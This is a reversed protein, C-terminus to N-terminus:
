RIKSKHIMSSAPSATMECRVDTHDWYHLHSGEFTTVEAGKMAGDMPFYVRVTGCGDTRWRRAGASRWRRDVLAKPFGYRNRYGASYIVHRAGSTRVFESSSSTTSGHHGAVVVDIPAEQILTPLLLQEIRAEADGTLLASGGSGKVLLVCSANNGRYHSAQPPQIFGFRVGDWRWSYRSPCLTSRVKVRAPEGSFVQGATVQALLRPAAGAHDNDGHSLIVADLHDIGQHRLWPVVVADALNFGGPYAAGTDFVAVHNRTQIVTGLGQGVDLVQLRFEGQQLDPRPPLHCGLILLLGAGRTRMGPPALLMASGLFLGSLTAPSWAPRLSLPHWQALWSLGGWVWTLVTAVWEVPPAYGGLLLIIVALMAAPILVLSFLPVMLLNILFGFPAMPMDFALLVPYLAISIGAQIILWTLWWPRGRTHPVLALIAGVAVFSLWFGADLVADPEFVLVVLLVQGFLQWPSWSRRFWLLLVASALMLLARQAPLGMGSILAYLTAAVLGAVAGAVMAPTHRCVPIRRWGRAVLFGVLGAALSIHLGSIALLHSVGTASLTERMDHTISSRDGLVLAQLIAKGKAPADIRQLSDRISQRVRAIWCCGAPGDPEATGDVVYGTYRIGHRYLWASYDWSGPNRYAHAPKVRLRARWSGGARLEPADRWSLRVRSVPGVTGDPTKIRAVFRTINRKRAPLDEITLRAEVTRGVWEPPLEPVQQVLACAAAWGWGLPLWVWWRVGWRILAFLVALGLLGPVWGPPLHSIHQFLTVGALFLFATWPMRKSIEM